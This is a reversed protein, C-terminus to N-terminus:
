IRAFLDSGNVVTTSEFCRTERKSESTYKVSHLSLVRMFNATKGGLAKERHWVCTWRKDEWLGVWAPVNGCCKARERERLYFNEFFRLHIAHMSILRLTVHHPLRRETNKSRRWWRAVFFTPQRAVCRARSRYKHSKMQEYGWKPCM